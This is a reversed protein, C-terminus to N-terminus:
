GLEPMIPLSEVGFDKMIDAMAADLAAATRADLPLSEHEALTKEVADKARDLMKSRGESEWTARSKKDIVAPPVYTETRYHKRTHTTRLYDGDTGMELILDIALTDDNVEIGRFLRDTMAIIENDVLLKELSFTNVFDIMGPGSIINVGGLVAVLASMASELGAQMDFLKPDALCAYCHSPLGYYRAMQAYSASMINTEVANLSTTSYRMDFTMPAGGMVMRAGPSVAQALVIGSVSEAVHMVVSGALTAPSAAGPMPVSITEIPIGWRAFDIINGCSVDGWKLPPQSCVDMVGAPKARLEEEGGRLARLLKALRAAGPIDYAGSVFPKSSNKLLQWLRYCDTIADPVDSVSLATSQLKIEPLADTLRYVKVMDDTVALRATEGDSELFNLGSSGPDFYYNDGGITFSNEGERDWLEFAEPVQRIAQKAVARPIFAKRKGRDIRCGAGELIDLAEASEFLIGAEELVRMASEHVKLIDEDSLFRIKPQSDLTFERMTYGKGTQAEPSAYFNNDMM